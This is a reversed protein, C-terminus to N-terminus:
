FHPLQEVFLFARMEKEGVACLRDENGIHRAITHSIKRANAVALNAIPGIKTVSLESRLHRHRASRPEVRGILEILYTDSKGIDIARADGVDDIQLVVTCTKIEVM